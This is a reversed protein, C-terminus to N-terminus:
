AHDGAMEGHDSTFVVLLDKLWGRRNYAALIKGIKDDILTIKGNYYARMKQIQKHTARSKGGYAVDEKPAIIPKTEEPCYMKAYKGPPDWPEHPGGFSVFLCTPSEGSM